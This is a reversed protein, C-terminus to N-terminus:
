FELNTTYVLGPKGNPAGSRHSAGDISEEAPFIKPLMMQLTTRVDGPKNAWVSCLSYKMTRPNEIVSSHGKGERSIAIVDNNHALEAESGSVRIGVRRKGIYGDTHWNREDSQYNPGHAWLKSIDRGRGRNIECIADYFNQAALRILPPQTKDNATYQLHYLHIHKKDADGIQFRQIISETLGEFDGEMKQDYLIVNSDHAFKDDRVGAISSALQVQSWKLSLKEVSELQTPDFWISM